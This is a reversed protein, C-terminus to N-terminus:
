LTGVGCWAPDVQYQYKNGKNVDSGYGWVVRKKPVHTVCAVKRGQGMNRGYRCIERKPM